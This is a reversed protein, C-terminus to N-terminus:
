AAVARDPVRGAADPASPVWRYWSEEGSMGDLYEVRPGGKPYESEWYWRSGSEEDVHSDLFAELTGMSRHTRICTRLLRKLSALAAEHTRGYATLGLEPYRAAVLEEASHSLIEHPVLVMVRETRMQSRGPGRAARPGGPAFLYNSEIKARGPRDVARDTRGGAESVALGMGGPSGGVGRPLGIWGDPM